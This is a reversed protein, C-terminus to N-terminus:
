AVRSRSTSTRRTSAPCSPRSRTSDALEKVDVTPSQAGAILPAGFDLASKGFGTPLGGLFNEFVRDIQQRLDAFSSNPALASPKSPWLADCGSACSLREGGGGPLSIAPWLWDSSAMWTTDTVSRAATLRTPAPWRNERSRSSFRLM